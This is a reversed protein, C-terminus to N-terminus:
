QSQEQNRASLMADAFAYADRASAATIPFYKDQSVRELYDRNVAFMAVMAQGAFWDRLTMGPSGERIGFGDHTRVEAVPFATPNDIM